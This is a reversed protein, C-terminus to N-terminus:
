QGRIKKKLAELEAEIDPAAVQRARDREEKAQAKRAAEEAKLKAFPDASKPERNVTTESSGFLAEELKKGAFDLTKGANEIAARAAAKGTNLAVDAAKKAARKKAEQELEDKKQAVKDALDSWFGM